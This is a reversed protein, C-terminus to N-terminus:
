QFRYELRFRFERKEVPHFHIDEVGAPEPQLRSEYFYEIDNGEADLLNLVDVGLVFNGLPYSLGLNLLTTGSKQVSNDETIPADGFHRVRLSGVFQNDLIVTAGLGAITDHADPISDQGEPADKFHANTKAATADVVLWDTPRWFVAAEVGVRETGANPETTGADGVFILESDLELYFLTASFNLRDSLVARFGTEAGTANVIAEFPEAPEGTVPDVSLEAARVDNSHFGGGYNAYIEWEDNVIYAIGLKPNVIYDSSSGSNEPRLANVDWSYFDGRLGFTTRLKDTWGVELDVYAGASIEDVADQRVTSLRERMSTNYLNVKSISDYRLDTGVTLFIEKNTWDLSREHDIRGGVIWREDEQEIQDGHVPDNLYYTSNGFLNLAYSTAFAQYYTNDGQLSGILNFRETEGGVTPDVYGFRDLVGADVARQPIQDTANWSNTYATAILESSMGWLDSSYKAFGNFLKVDEPNLWPGDSRRVEGALLLSGGSRLTWSDAVLFRAFNQTGVTARLFGSELSNYTDFKTSSAASFDGVDAHYTGKRYEITQVLEPIIFNMDLYGQGHAHTRFNVPMGEYQISFDTGHDLNMGRLFYQNAKGGGSHQTAIMGPVVEVLEGVRLLPRTSLDDFGVIGESASDAAGVLDIARGWVLIEERQEDGAAVVDNHSASQALASGATACFVLSLLTLSQPERFVEQTNLSNYEM